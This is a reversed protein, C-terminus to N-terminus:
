EMTAGPKVTKWHKGDTSVAVTREGTKDILTGGSTRLTDLSVLGGRRPGGVMPRLTTGGPPLRWLRRGGASGFLLSGDPTFAMGSFWWAGRPVAIARWTRQDSSSVYLDLEPDGTNWDAYWAAALRRGPGIAVGLEGSYRLRMPPLTRIQWSRGNDRSRALQWNSKGRRYNYNTAYATGETATVVSDDLAPRCKCPQHAAPYLEGSAPDVVWVGQDTHQSLLLSNADVLLAGSGPDRPQTSVRLPSVSGDPHLVFPLTTDAKGDSNHVVTVAAASGGPLTRTWTDSDDVPGPIAVGTESAWNDRTVLVAASCRNRDRDTCGTLTAAADTPSTYQVELPVSPQALVKRISERGGLQHALGSDQHDISPSGTPSRTPTRRDASHGSSGCGAFTTVTLLATASATVARTARRRPTPTMGARRAAIHTRGKAPM